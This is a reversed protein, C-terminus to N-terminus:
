SSLWLSPAHLYMCTSQPMFNLQLTVTHSFNPTSTPICVVGGGSRVTGLHQSVLTPCTLWWTSVVVMILASTSLM